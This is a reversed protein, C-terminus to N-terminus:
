VKFHVLLEPYAQASPVVFEWHAQEQQGNSIGPRAIVSDYPIGYPEVIPPRKSSKRPGKTMYPHGLVARVIFLCLGKDSPHKCYQLAKCFDSTLYLGQGYLDRGDGSLRDDFGQRVIQQENKCSTGHFLLVENASSDLTLFDLHEAIPKVGPAVNQAWPCDRRNRLTNSIESKSLSYKKWLSVNTVQEVFQVEVNCAQWCKPHQHWNFDTPLVSKLMSQVPEKLFPRRAVAPDFCAAAPSGLTTKWTEMDKQLQMIEPLQQAIKTQKNNLEAKLYAKEKNATALQKVFLKSDQAIKSELYAKEKNTTALQERQKENDERLESVQKMLAAVVEDNNEQTAVSKEVGISRARFSQESESASPDFYCPGTRRTRRISRVNGTRCNKQVMSHFNILYSCGNIEHMYNNQSTGWAKEVCRSDEPHFPAWATPGSGSTAFEWVSYQCMKEVSQHKFQCAKEVTNPLQQRIGKPSRSRPRAKSPEAQEAGSNWTGSTDAARQCTTQSSGSTVQETSPQVSVGADVEAAEAAATWDFVADDVYGMQDFLNKFLSRLYAYDPEDDFGLQQCYQLYGAFERPLDKCQEPIYLKKDIESTATKGIGRTIWGPVTRGLGRGVSFRGAPPVRVPSASWAKGAGSPEGVDSPISPPKDTSDGRTIWAPLTSRKGRGRGVPGHAPSRSREKPKGVDPEASLPQEVPTSGAFRSGGVARPMDAPLKVEDLPPLEPAAAEKRHAELLEIDIQLTEMEWRGNKFYDWPSAIPLLRLLSRFLEEGSITIEGNEDEQVEEDIFAM